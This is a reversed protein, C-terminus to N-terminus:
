AARLVRGQSPGGGAMAVRPDDRLFVSRRTATTVSCVVCAGTVDFAIAHRGWSTSRGPARSARLDPFQIVGPLGASYTANVISITGM